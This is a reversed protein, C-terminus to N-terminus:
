NRKYIAETERLVKGIYCFEKVEPIKSAFVEDPKGVAAFKGDLLMAITDAIRNASVMDHTITVTTAGIKKQLSIILENIQDCMVPDLGTTPEDYLIIEPEMAIARALGARKKMGGSLEAPKLNEVNYLGVMDLKETVIKERDRRPLNTHEKLAFGVNEGITLSDFLAAGQFLMGFKRRLDNLDKENLAGVEKGGVMVRGADPKLLGIMHKILVSKGSGSGGIVVMSEGRTITLNAGTLVAKAGFAKHLDIVQIITDDAM